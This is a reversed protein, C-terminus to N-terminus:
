KKSILHKIIIYRDLLKQKLPRNSKQSTISANNEHRRYSILKDSIFCVKGLKFATINGIWVDHMPIDNPFPLCKELVNKKFVMCCGIYGNKILNYIKSKKTHNLDFFSLHLIKGNGDIIEADHIILNASMLNETCIAVKNDKWIDDQDSLFIIDGQALKLANELNYIPSHFTNGESIKIRSDNFSRIIELTADKSSDDSIIIEDNDSLQKLISEIQQHIYKEGNYTPICVSIM